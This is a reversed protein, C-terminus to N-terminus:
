CRNGDAAVSQIKGAAWGDRAILCTCICVETTACTHNRDAYIGGALLMAHFCWYVPECWPRSGEVYRVLKQPNTQSTPAAFQM